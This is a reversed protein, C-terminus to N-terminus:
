KNGRPQELHPNLQGSQFPYRNQGQPGHYPGCSGYGSVTAMWVKWPLPNKNPVPLM